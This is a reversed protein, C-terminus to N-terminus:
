WRRVSAKGPWRRTARTYRCAAAVFLAGGLLWVPDWLFLYWRLAEPDNPTTVGLESLVGTVVGLGGYLVFLAGTGWGAVLLLRRPLRWRDPRALALALLGALVKLGGTVWVLAVFAPDREQANERIERSLITMGLDGGAAWYFSLAAFAFAWAAAWYGPTGAVQRQLEPNREDARRAM